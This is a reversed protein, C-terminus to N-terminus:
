PLVEIRLFHQHGTPPLEVVTQTAEGPGAEVVLPRGPATELYQWAILDDSWRLRYRKQPTSSWRLTATTGTTSALEVLILRSEALKPHTGAIFEERNSMGDADFDLLADAPDNLDFGYETEWADRMGDNDTDPGPDTGLEFSDLIGIYSGDANFGHMDLRLYRGRVTVQAYGHFLGGVIPEPLGLVGVSSQRAYTGPVHAPQGNHTGGIFMHPWDFVLPEPFDLYSGGGAIVYNVGNLLGREYGHMHGSFCLDVQYQELRPVLQARLAANGDIWRECYPPVHVAVIRFRADRAAPSALQDDLWGNTLDNAPDSASRNNVQFYDLCVFFVGSYSFSFNGYGSTRVSPSANTQWRSPMDAALRLPHAPSSGDHNGWSIFFPVHPGLVAAWRDLHSSKTSAYSNGDQAHDGIGLGFAVGRDVMHQLMTKAPEWPDAQWVGGNSTQTDGLAGFTFDMWRAPATRFTADATVPDGLTSALRYHYTTEASLGTLVARLFYTGGGSAVSEMPVSEGYTDNTGFQLMLPVDETLECMVVMSTESMNQLYPPTSFTVQPAGTITISQIDVWDSTAGNIDRARASIAFSGPFSWAHTLSRANGPPSFSSWSSVKGDGWEAQVQVLDGDPDAAQFGFELMESTTGEEPGAPQALLSPPLNDPDPILAIGPGGLSAVEEATLAGEFIALAAVHLPANEGNDDGFFLIGNPSGAPFLSFRGDVGGNGTGTHTHFLEGDLFTRYKATPLSLDVTLVLRTWRSEPFASGSYGMDGVGIGDDTNRIFYDGDNDTANAATQFITRWSSRSAAPSFVDVLVSYQNVRSGGGNATIGPLARLANATGARTTIVGALATGLDDALSATHAPPNGLIELPQGTTAAALSGANEFEWLGRLEAAAGRGNAALTFAALLTLLLSHGTLRPSSM